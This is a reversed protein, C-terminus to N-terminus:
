PNAVTKHLFWRMFNTMHAHTRILADHDYNDDFVWIIVACISTVVLFAFVLPSFLIRLISMM